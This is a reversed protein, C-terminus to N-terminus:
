ASYRIMFKELKDGFANGVVKVSASDEILFEVLNEFKDSNQITVNLM